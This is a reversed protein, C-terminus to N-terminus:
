CGNKSRHKTVVKSQSDLGISWTVGSDPKIGSRYVLFRQILNRSSKGNEVDQHPEGVTRIVVDATDGIEVRRFDRDYSYISLQRFGIWCGFPMAFTGVATALGIALRM